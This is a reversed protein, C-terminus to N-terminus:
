NDCTLLIHFISLPFSSSPSSSFLSYESKPQLHEPFKNRIATILIIIIAGLNSFRRLYIYYIFSFDFFYNEPQLESSKRKLLYIYISGKYLLRFTWTTFYETCMQCSNRFSDDALRSGRQLHLIKNYEDKYRLCKAYTFYISM